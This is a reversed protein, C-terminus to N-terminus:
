DCPPNKQAGAVLTRVDVIPGALSMLVKHYARAAQRHLQTCYHVFYADITIAYSTFLECDIKWFSKLVQVAQPPPRVFGIDGGKKFLRVLVMLLRVSGEWKVRKKNLPQFM